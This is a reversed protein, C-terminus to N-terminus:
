SMGILTLSPVFIFIGDSILGCEIMTCVVFIVHDFFPTQQRKHFYVKPWFSSQKEFEYGRLIHSRLWALAIIVLANDKEPFRFILM